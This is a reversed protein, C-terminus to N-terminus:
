MPDWYEHRAVQRFKGHEITLLHQCGDVRPTITVTSGFARRQITYSAGLTNTRALFALMGSLDPQGNVGATETDFTASDCRLTTQLRTAAATASTTMGGFDTNTTVVTNSPGDNRSWFKISSTGGGTATGVTYPASFSTSRSYRDISNVWDIAIPLVTASRTPLSAGTYKDLVWYTSRLNVYNYAYRLYLTGNPGASWYSYGSAALRRMLDQTNQNADAKAGYPHGGGSWDASFSYNADTLLAPVAGEVSTSLTGFDSPTRHGAILYWLDFCVLQVPRYPLDPRWTELATDVIGSFQPLWGLGGVNYYGWRVYSQTGARDELSATFNFPDITDDAPQKHLITCQGAPKNLWDSPDGAAGEISIVHQTIDTWTPVPYVGGTLTTNTSTVPAVQVILRWATTGPILTGAGSSPATDFLSSWRGTRTLVM